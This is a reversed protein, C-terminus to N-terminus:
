LRKVLDLHKMNLRDPSYLIIPVLLTSAVEDIHLYCTSILFSRTRNFIEKGCVKTLLPDLPMVQDDVLACQDRSLYNTFTHIKPDLLTNLSYVVIEVASSKLLSVKDNKSFLDFDKLIQTFLVLCQIPVILFNASTNPSKENNPSQFNANDSKPNSVNAFLISPTSFNLSYIIKFSPISSSSGISRLKIQSEDQYTVSSDLSYLEVLSRHIFNILLLTTTSTFKCNKLYDLYIKQLVVGIM